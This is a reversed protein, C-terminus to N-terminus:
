KMKLFEVDTPNNIDGKYKVEIIKNKNLISSDFGNDYYIRRRWGGIKVIISKKEVELIKLSISKIEKGNQASIQKKEKNKITM